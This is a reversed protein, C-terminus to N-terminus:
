SHRAPREDDRHPLFRQKGEDQSEHLDWLGLDGRNEIFSGLQDRVPFKESKTDEAV